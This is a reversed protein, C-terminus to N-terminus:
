PFLLFLVGTWKTLLVVAVGVGVGVAARWSPQQWHILMTWFALTVAVVLTLDLMYVHALASIGPYLLLLGAALWGVGGSGYLRRALRQTLVGLLGVMVLNLLQGDARSFPHGLALPIGLWYTLPPYRQSLHWFQAWWLPDRRFRGLHDAFAQAQLLHQAEDWAPPLPDTLNWIVLLLLPLVALLGGGIRLELPIGREPGQEKM